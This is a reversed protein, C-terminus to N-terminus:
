MMVARRTSLPLPADEDAVAVKLKPTYLTAGVVVVVDVDVVVVVTGAAVVVTAGAADPDDGPEVKTVIGEPLTVSVEVTTVGVVAAMLDDVAVDVTAALTVVVVTGGVV